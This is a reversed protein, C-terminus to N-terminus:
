IEKAIPWSDLSFYDNYHRQLHIMKGNSLLYEKWKDDYFEIYAAVVCEQLEEEATCGLLLKGAKVEGIGPIGPINDTPDGKLLQKYYFKMASEPSIDLLEKKHMLYQKGPICQLDKDITCVIYDINARRAEEAWIRLLDDAERGDAAIAYEEMVALERISPVFHNMTSPDHHRNMKYNPYLLYRFNDIGKVAMIYDDCFVTGLLIDLEIKFHEWSQMLYEKDEEKTFELPVRKGDADLSIYAEIIENQKIIKAKKEWRPKCANYALVDGDIIALTM